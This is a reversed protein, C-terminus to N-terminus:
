ERYFRHVMDGTEENPKVYRSLDFPGVPLDSPFRLDPRAKGSRTDLPRPLQAYPNGAKDVQVAAHGSRSIGNAGPFKGYLGDFSWNEQFIVIVHEIDDLSAPSAKVLTLLLLCGAAVSGRLKWM